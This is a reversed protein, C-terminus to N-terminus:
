STKKLKLIHPEVKAWYENTKPKKYGTPGGNHLKALIEYTIPKGTKKSYQNGWFKLFIKTIDKSKEPNFADNWTYLPGSYKPNLKLIRNVEDVYEQHIQLLGRAAGNDGIAMPDNKANEVKILSNVLVDLDINQNISITSQPTPASQAEPTAGFMTSAGILIAAVTDKFGETTIEGNPNKTYDIVEHHIQWYDGNKKITSKRKNSPNMTNFFRLFDNAAEKTYFASGSESILINKLKQDFSLM